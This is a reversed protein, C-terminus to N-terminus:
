TPDDDLTEELPESLEPEYDFTEPILGLTKEFGLAWLDFLDERFSERTLATYPNQPEPPQQRRRLYDRADSRGRELATAREPTLDFGTDRLFLEAPQDAPPM